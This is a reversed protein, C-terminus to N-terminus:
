WKRGDDHGGDGGRVRRILRVFLLLGAACTTVATLVLGFGPAVGRATLVILLDRVAVAGAVGALIWAWPVARLRLIYAGICLGLVAVGDRTAIGSVAREEGVAWPLFAGFAGAFLLV